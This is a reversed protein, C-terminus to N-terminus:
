MLLQIFQISVIIEHWAGIRETYLVIYEVPVICVYRRRQRKTNQCTAVSTVFLYWFYIGSSQLGTIVPAAILNWTNLYSGYEEGRRM